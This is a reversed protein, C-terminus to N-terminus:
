LIYGLNQGPYPPNIGRLRLELMRFKTRLRDGARDNNRESREDSAEVIAEHDGAGQEANIELSAGYLLYEKVEKPLPLLDVVQFLNKTNQQILEDRIMERCVELLTPVATNICSNGASKRKAHHKKYLHTFVEPVDNEKFISLNLPRNEFDRYGAAYLLLVSEPDNMIPWMRVTMKLQKVPAGAALLTKLTAPRNNEKAHRRQCIILGVKIAGELCFEMAKM